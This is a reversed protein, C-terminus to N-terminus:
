SDETPRSTHGNESLALVSFTYAQMAGPFEASHSITMSLLLPHIYKESMEGTMEIDASWTSFPM